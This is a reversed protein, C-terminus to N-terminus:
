EHLGFAKNIKSVIKKAQVMQTKFLEFAELAKEESIDKGLFACIASLSAAPDDVNSYMKLGERYQSLVQKLFEAEFFDFEVM